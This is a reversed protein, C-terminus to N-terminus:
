GCCGAEDSGAEGGCSGGSSSAGILSPDALVAAVDVANIDDVVRVYGSIMNMWCSYDFDATPILDIVNDGQKLDLKANYAPFILSENCSTLEDGVINWKTEIDKQMIIVAPSFADGSVTVTINQVGNEITAIGVDDATFGIEQNEFVDEGWEENRKISPAKVESKIDDTVESVVSINGEIMGMWCTYLINGESEPTFEIINEGVVMKKEIGYKPVTLPNNCGNLNGQEVIITWKVPVGKIVTFSEYENPHMNTTINQVDQEVVAVNGSPAKAMAVSVGSQNLGRGM